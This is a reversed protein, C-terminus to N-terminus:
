CARVSLRAGRLPGNREPQSHDPVKLLFVRTSSEIKEEIEMALDTKMISM